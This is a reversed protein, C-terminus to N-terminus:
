NDEMARAPHQGLFPISQHSSVCDEGEQMKVGIGYDALSPTLSLSSDTRWEELFNHLLLHLM